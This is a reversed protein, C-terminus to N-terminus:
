DAHKSIYLVVYIFICARANSLTARKMTKTYTTSYRDLITDLIQKIQLIYANKTNSVGYVRYMTEIFFASHITHIDKKTHTLYFAVISSILLFIDNNSKDEQIKSLMLYMKSTSIHTKSCAIGMATEDVRSETAMQIRIKRSITEIDASINKVVNLYSEGEENESTLAAVDNRKNNSHNKMFENTVNKMTSSLRTNLNSVFYYMNQDTPNTLQDTMGFNTDSIYQLMEFMTNFKKLLFKKSLEDITYDMISEDPLYQFQRKQISSYFKVTLMFCAVQHPKTKMSKFQEQEEWYAFILADILINWANNAIQWSPEIYACSKIANVVVSEPVELVRFLESYDFNSFSVRRSPGRVSLGESNRSLFNQVYSLFPKM